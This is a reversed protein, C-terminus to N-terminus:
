EEGERAGDCSRERSLIEARAAALDAELPPVVGLEELDEPTGVRGLLQFARRKASEPAGPRRVLEGLVATMSSEQVFALAGLAETALSESMLMRELRERWEGQVECSVSVAAKKRMGELALIAYVGALDDAKAQLQLQPLAAEGGTEGLALAADRKVGARPDTQLLVILSDQGRSGGFLGLLRLVTARDPRDLSARSLAPVVADSIASKLSADALRPFTEELLEALLMAHDPTVAASLLDRIKEPPL